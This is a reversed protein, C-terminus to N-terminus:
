GDPGLQPDLRRVTELPLRFLMPRSGRRQSPAFGTEPLAEYPFAERLLQRLKRQERWGAHIAWADGESGEDVSLVADFFRRPKFYWGTEPRYHARARGFPYAVAHGPWEWEAFEPVHWSLVLASQDDVAIIDGPGAEGRLVEMASTLESRLVGLETHQDLTLNQGVSVGTYVVLVLAAARRGWWRAADGRWRTAEAIAVAMLGFVFPFFHLSHRTGGFPLVKGAVLLYALPLPVALAFLLIWRRRRALTAAGSVVLLVTLPLLADGAMVKLLDAGNLLFRVPAASFPIEMWGEVYSEARMQRFPRMHLLFYGLFAALYPIQSAAVALWRSWGARTALLWAGMALGLVTYVVVTAYLFSLAAVMAVTYVALFGGGRGSTYRGLAGIAVLVCAYAETYSRVVSSLEVLGPSVAVLAAAALAGRRGVLPRGAWYALPIMALGALLAPLRMLGAERGLALLPHLVLYSAPPHAHFRAAALVAELSPEDATHVLMAEDPNLCFATLTRLRLWLGVALLGAMAWWRAAARDEPRLEGDLARRWLGMPRERTFAFAALGGLGLRLGTSPEDLYVEVPGLAVVPVLGMAGLVALMGGAAALALMAVAFLRAM